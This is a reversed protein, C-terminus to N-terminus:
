LILNDKVHAWVTQRDNKNIKRWFSELWHSIQWVEKQGVEIFRFGWWNPTIEQSKKRGNRKTKAGIAIEHIKEVGILGKKANGKKKIRIVTRKEDKIGVIKEERIRGKKKTIRIEGKKWCSKEGVRWKGKGFGSSLTIKWVITDRGFACLLFVQWSHWYRNRTWVEM